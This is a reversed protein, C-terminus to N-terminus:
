RSVESEGELDFHGTFLPLYSVETSIETKGSFRYRVLRMEVIRDLVERRMNTFNMVM